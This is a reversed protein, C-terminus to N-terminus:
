PSLQFGVLEDKSGQLRRGFTAPQVSEEQLTGYSFLLTM